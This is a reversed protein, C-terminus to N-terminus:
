RKTMVQLALELVAVLFCWFSWDPQGDNDNIMIVKRRRGCTLSGTCGGTKRAMADPLLSPTVRTVFVRLL